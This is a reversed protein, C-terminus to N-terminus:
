CPARKTIAVETSPTCFLVGRGKDNVINRRGGPDSNDADAPEAMHRQLKSIFPPTLNVGERTARMAMRLRGKSGREVLGCRYVTKGNHGITVIVGQLM